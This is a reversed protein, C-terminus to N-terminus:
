EDDPDANYRSRRANPTEQLASQAEERLVQILTMSFAGAPDDVPQGRAADRLINLGLDRRGESVLHRGDTGNTEASHIGSTQIVRSLFRLFEPLALLREMDLEEGRKKV